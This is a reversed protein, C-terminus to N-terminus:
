VGIDGKDGLDGVMDGNNGDGVDVGVTDGPGVALGEELNDGTESGIVINNITIEFKRNRRVRCVGSVRDGLDDRLGFGIRGDEFDGESGDDGFDMAIGQHLIEMVLMRFIVPVSIHAVASMVM